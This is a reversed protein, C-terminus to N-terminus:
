VEWEVIGGYQKELVMLENYTFSERFGNPSMCVLMRRNKGIVTFEDHELVKRGQKPSELDARSVPINIHQGVRVSALARLIMNSEKIDDAITRDRQSVVRQVFERKSAM